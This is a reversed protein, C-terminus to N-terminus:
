RPAPHALLRFEVQFGAGRLVVLLGRRSQPEDDCVLVRPRGTM